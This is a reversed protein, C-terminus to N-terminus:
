YFKPGIEEDEAGLDVMTAALDTTGAYPHTKNKIKYSQFTKIFTKRLCNSEVYEISSLKDLLNSATYLFKRLEALTDFANTVSELM